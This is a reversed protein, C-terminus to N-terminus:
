TLIKHFLAVVRFSYTDKDLCNAWTNSLKDEYTSLALNGIILQISEEFLDSGIAETYIESNGEGDIVPKMMETITLVQNEANNELFIEELREQLLFMSTLNAQPDLDAVLVKYGLEKLMYATHYVMTTKGVGGKNNFFVIRKAM